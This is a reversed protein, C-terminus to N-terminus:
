STRKADPANSIPAAVQVDVLLDDCVSNQVNKGLWDETGPEQERVRADGLRINVNTAEPGLTERTLATDTNSVVVLTRLNLGLSVQRSLM